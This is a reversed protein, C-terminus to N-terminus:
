QGGLNEFFDKMKAFFGSSEPHTKTSSEAEFEALLERQRKTLNQPTEVTTQIYLDGVDRSRLIPMGKAKLKFQKGSQTGEPIKVKAEGGDLTHVSVEGGLAAQVM